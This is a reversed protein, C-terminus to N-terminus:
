RHAPGSSWQTALQPFCDDAVTCSFLYLISEGNVLLAGDVVGANQWNAEEVRASSPLIQLGEGGESRQFLLTLSGYDSDEFFVVILPRCFVFIM